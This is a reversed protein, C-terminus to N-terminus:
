FPLKKEDQPRRGTMRVYFRSFYSPDAFGLENAVQVVSANTYRLLRQAEMACRRHILDLPSCGAIRTCLRTLTRSSLGISRAYFSVPRHERLHTEVLQRFLALRHDAREGLTKEPTDHPLSRLLAEALALFLPDPTQWDSALLTLEGALWDIRPLYGAQIAGHGGHTLLRQLPDRRDAARGAFETSLTLVHGTTGPQFRFGHVCAVPVAVFCPGALAIARDDMRIDVHGHRVLLVQISSAHRHPAIEWDHLASRAAITEIHAFGASQAGGEEGYLAFTPIVTTQAVM